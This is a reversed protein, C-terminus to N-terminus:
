LHSAQNPHDFLDSFIHFISNPPFVFNTKPSGLVFSTPKSCAIFLDGNRSVFCRKVLASLLVSVLFIRCIVEHDKNYLRRTRTTYGGSGQQM